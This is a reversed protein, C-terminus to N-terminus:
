RNTASHSQSAAPPVRFSIALRNYLNMLVITITLDALEKENFVAAAAEYDASPVGTQAVRTV